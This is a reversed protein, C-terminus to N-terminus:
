KICEIKDAHYGVPGAPRQYKESKSTVMIGKQNGFLFERSFLSLSVNSTFVQLAFNQM